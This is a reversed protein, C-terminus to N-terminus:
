WAKGREEPIIRRLTYIDTTALEDKLSELRRWPDWPASILRGTIGRGSESALCVCLAAAETISAGGSEKQRLASKYYADGVKQPGAELVEDLMATNLAGPAIMNVEVAFPALEQALTEGFRVLGAKSAAYASLFPMPKTAGGGSLLLIRGAASNKLMPLFARCCYVAGLLNIHVASTWQNWEVDEVRGKPGYIGANAVLIDVGGLRELAESALADVDKEVSVDCARGWVRGPVSHALEAVSAALTNADRSCLLVSAGERLFADAVARGLGRSSGTIVARKGELQMPQENM